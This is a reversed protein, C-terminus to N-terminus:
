VSNTLALWLHNVGGEDRWHRLNKSWELESGFENRWSWLRNTWRHLPFERTIGIAGHVQHAMRAVRTAAKRVRITAAIAAFKARDTDVADVAARAPQSPRQVRKLLALWCNNCRKSNPSTTTWVTRAPPLFCEIRRSDLEDSGGNRHLTRTLWSDSVTGSSVPSATWRSDPVTVNTLLLSDRPEGAMNESHLISYDQPVLSVLIPDGSM